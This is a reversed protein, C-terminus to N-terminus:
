GKNAQASVKGTGAAASPWTKRLWATYDKSDQVMVTGRMDFHADGCLESCGLEYTGPTRSEFWADITRGPVVDQRFRFNPIFLSHIVDKSRLILEVPRGAPVHLENILTVDDPTGFKGDPGPYTFKWAFREATVQVQVANAPLTEKVLHWTSAGSADIGLDLCLVVAAPILIWAAQRATEGRKYFASRGRKRRYRLAFFVLLGEAALFWAGVIYYILSITSDVSGGFTSVNHPLWSLM